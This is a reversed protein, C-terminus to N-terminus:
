LMRRVALLSAQFFAAALQRVGFRKSCKWPQPTGTLRRAHAVAIFIAGSYIKPGGSADALCPCAGARRAGNEHVTTLRLNM